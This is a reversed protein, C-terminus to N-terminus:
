TLRVVAYGDVVVSACPHAPRPPHSFADLPPLSTWTHWHKWPPSLLARSCARLGATSLILVVVGTVCSLATFSKMVNEPCSLVTKECLKVYNDVMCGWCLLSLHKQNVHWKCKLVEPMTKGALLLQCSAMVKLHQM